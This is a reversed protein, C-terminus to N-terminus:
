GSTGDGFRLAAFHAWDGGATGAFKATITAERAAYARAAGRIRTNVRLLSTETLAIV